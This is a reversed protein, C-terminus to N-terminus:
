RDPDDDPTVRGLLSNYQSLDPLAVRMTPLKAPVPVPTPYAPARRNLLLQRVAASQLCGREYAEELAM